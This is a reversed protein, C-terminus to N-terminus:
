SSEWTRTGFCADVSILIFGDSLGKSNLVTFEYAVPQNDVSYYTVPSDALTAGQWSTEEASYM